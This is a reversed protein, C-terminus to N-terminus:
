GALKIIDASNMPMGAVPFFNNDIDNIDDAETLGLVNFVPTHTINGFSRGAKRKMVM